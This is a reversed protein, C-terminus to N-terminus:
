MVAGIAKLSWGNAHIDAVAKYERSLFSMLVVMEAVPCIIDL